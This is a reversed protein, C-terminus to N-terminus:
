RSRGASAAWMGLLVGVGLWLPVGSGGVVQGSGSGCVVWRVCVRIGLLDGGWGCGLGVGGILTVMGLIRM